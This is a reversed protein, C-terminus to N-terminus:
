DYPVARMGLLPRFAMAWFDRYFGRPAEPQRGRVKSILFNLSVGLVYLGAALVARPRGLNKRFYYQWSHYWYAPRRPRDTQGSRVGTAVGEAHIVEAERVHWIEGGQRAMQRMLDTEEFYLFFNPDFFGAAEVAALRMMVAAGSVWDVRGTATEPPLPVRWPSLLRAVPGFSLAQEFTSILGFFRFAATVPVHGPKDIRAGVAAAGPHADLFDALVAMAENELRADPNLLFVYRPPRVRTALAKLVLNNGSGFGHNIAEAHLEVRDTWGRERITNALVAADGAPSANDVLHVEIRRGGHQRALVSEVAEIALSATNYNVIIVAIDASQPSTM